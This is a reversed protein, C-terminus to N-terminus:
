WSFMSRDTVRRGQGGRSTTPQNQVQQQRGGGFLAEFFNGGGGGGAYAGAVGPPLSVSPRSYNQQPNEVPVDAIKRDGKLIAIISADRGYVDDRTELKGDDGIFATQYTIHVPIFSQLKIDIESPGYMSKLKEASYGDKPNALSLIVEGYKLPNEVRMCGHSYARPYRAFLHKEPTDHQYVLFKNPFNFRIRGLANGDGPPQQISVGGDAAQTLKFGMRQLVTPDQQLAPLYEGYVISPPVNWTPNVTIYKMTESLLPTAHKGPKGTVVKTMWVQESGNYVRLTFDPINLIVRKAGLDRPVWRWREMNAIITDALHERKPGNMASITANGANGDPKISNKEQFKAVADSLEKDYTTNGSKAALGLRARLAPVRPDTMEKKGFKLTPGADIRVVPAATAGNSEARAKALQTKLATYQPHQPEYSALVADVSKGDALKGLVDKAEPTELNYTIDASVRSYAVRGTAAHRAYALVSATLKAEADALAAADMGAKFTPIPYDAPDLGDADVKSLYAVAAKARDNAGANTTWIPAFKRASYFAEAGSRDSAKLFVRDGKAAFMDRLKETVADASATEPAKVEPAKAAEVPKVEVPKTEAAKPAEVPKTDVNQSDAPRSEMPRSELPKTEASKQEGALPPTAPPNMTQPTSATTEVDRQSPPAVNTAEPVPVKSEVASTTPTVSQAFAAPGSAALAIAVATGALLRELRFIAM